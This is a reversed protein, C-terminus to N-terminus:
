LSCNLRKFDALNKFHKQLRNNEGLSDKILTLLVTISNLIM